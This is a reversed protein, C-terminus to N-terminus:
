GKELNGKQFAGDWQEWERVRHPHEGVCGGAGVKQDQCEVANHCQICEPGLAMGGVSTWVLVDEAEYKALAM